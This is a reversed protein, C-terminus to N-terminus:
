APALMSSPEPLRFSLTLPRSDKILMAEKEEADGNEIIIFYPVVYYSLCIDGGSGYIIHISTYM